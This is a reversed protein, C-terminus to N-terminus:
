LRLLLAIYSFSCIKCTSVFYLILNGLNRGNSIRCSKSAPLLSVSWCASLCVPLMYASLCVPLCAPSCSPICIPLCASLCAAAPMCDPLYALLFARLCSPRSSPPCPSLCFSPPIPESLASCIETYFNLFNPRRETDTSM